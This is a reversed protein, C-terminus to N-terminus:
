SPQWRWTPHHNRVFDFNASPAIRPCLKACFACITVHVLSQRHSKQPPARTTTIKCTTSATSKAATSRCVVSSLSDAAQQACYLVFWRKVECVVVITAYGQPPKVPHTPTRHISFPNNPLIAMSVHRVCGASGKTITRGLRRTVSHSAWLHFNAGHPTPGADVATM